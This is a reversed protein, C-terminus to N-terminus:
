SRNRDLFTDIAAELAQKAKKKELSARENEVRRKAVSEKRAQDLTQAMQAELAARSKRLKTSASAAMSAALQLPIALAQESALLTLAECEAKQAQAVSHRAAQLKSLEMRYLQQQVDFLRKARNLQKKM